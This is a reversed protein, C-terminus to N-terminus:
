PAAASKYVAVVYYGHVTAAPDVWQYITKPINDAYPVLHHRATDRSVGQLTLRASRRTATFAVTAAGGDFTGIVNFPV